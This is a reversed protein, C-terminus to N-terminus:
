SCSSRPTGPSALDLATVPRRTRPGGDLGPRDADLFLLGPSQSSFPRLEGGFGVGIYSTWFGMLRFSEALSTTGWITGPQETFPLFDVGNHPTCWRAARGVLGVHGSGDFALRGLWPALAARPVGGWGVEYAVLLAPALLVWGTVAANVGGGTSTLVLAFAAPWWWGRPDRLGRHVCLLMWPLAAYALLAVSTRDAYVAVYPNLVYLTGAALHLPGDPAATGDRDRVLARILARVGLAAIALLTGLWLRHVLWLPLGLADGVAFFPGMPFLYGGYQGAWVHGLGATSTWVNAVDSLFRSPDVYLNVKTDAVLTGPRQVLALLYAGALLTM